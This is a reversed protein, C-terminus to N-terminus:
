HRRARSPSLLGRGHEQRVCHWGHAWLHAVYWEAKYLGRHGRALISRHRVRAGVSGRALAPTEGGRPPPEKLSGEPRRKEHAARHGHAQARAVIPSRRPALERHEGTPLPDDKPM